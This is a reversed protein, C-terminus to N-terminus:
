YQQNPPNQSMKRKRIIIVIIILVIFDFVVVAIIVIASINATGHTATNTQGTNNVSKIGPYAGSAIGNDRVDYPVLSIDTYHPFLWLDDVWDRVESPDFKGDSQINTLYFRSGPHLKRFLKSVTPIMYSFNRLYPDEDPTSYLKGANPKCERTDFDRFKLNFGRHVYGFKNLNKNLWARYFVYLNISFPDNQLGTMKMPFYIADKGGTDFSFRLPHIDVPEDKKLEAESVKICAYVYGKRSYYGVVDQSNELPQYGNDGLWTNLTGPVQELVVSIDFSGVIERKILKVPADAIGEAEKADDTSKSLKNRYVSRNEIYEFLEEFLKNDEQAIQPTNPFPIIWAFSKAEGVVSIKLILDENYKGEDAKGTFIIIAEQASEELSGKYDQPIVIKGDALVINSILIVFLISLIKIRL